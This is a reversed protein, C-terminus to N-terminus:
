HLCRDWLINTDWFNGCSNFMQHHTCGDQFQRFMPVWCGSPPGWWWTFPGPHPNLCRGGQVTLLNPQRASIYSLSAETAIGEPTISSMKAPPSAWQTGRTPDPLWQDFELPGNHRHVFICGDSTYYQLIPLDKNSGLSLTALTVLFDWTTHLPRGDNLLLHYQLHNAQVTQEAALQAGAPVDRSTDHTGGIKYEIVNHQNSVHREWVDIVQSFSVLLAVSVLLTGSIIRAVPPGSIVTELEALMREKRSVEDQSKQVAAEHDKPSSTGSDPLPPESRTSV